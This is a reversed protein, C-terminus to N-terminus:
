VYLANQTDCNDNSYGRFCSCLGTSQDCTGRGSCPSVYTFLGSTSIVDQVYFVKAASISTPVTSPLHKPAVQVGGFPRDVYVTWPTQPTAFQINFYQNEVFILDGKSLTSTLDASPAFSTAGITFTTITPTSAIWTDSSYFVMATDTSAGATSVSPGTYMYAVTFSNTGTTQATVMLHRDFVKIMDPVSVYTAAKLYAVNSAFYLLSEGSQVSSVYFEASSSTLMKNSFRDVFEGRTVGAGVTVTTSSPVNTEYVSVPKLVGPNKYFNLRVVTGYQYTTASVTDASCRVDSIVSNPLLMLRSVIGNCIDATNYVVSASGTAQVAPIPPTVYDEGFVDFFKLRFDGQV